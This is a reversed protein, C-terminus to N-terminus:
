SIQNKNPNEQNETTKKHEVPIDYRIKGKNPIFLSQKWICSIM